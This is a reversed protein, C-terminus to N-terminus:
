LKNNMSQEVACLNKGTEWISQTAEDPTSLGLNAQRMKQYDEPEKPIHSLVEKFFEDQNKTAVLRNRKRLEGLIGLVRGSEDMDQIGSTHAPLVIVSDGYEALVTQVTHYLDGVWESAKGGLDPRGLSNIFLLDGSFLFRNEFFFVNHGPTHGPAQVSRITISTTGLSFDGRAPLPAYKIKGGEMEVPSVHYVAGTADALKRGGSLHDAHLHTDFVYKLKLSNGLLYSLYNEVHRGADIVAAESGSVLVYSLCGKGVRNFQVVKINGEDWITSHRYLSGWARMGGSINCSSFGRQALMDAVFRSADGKGCVVVIEEDKPLKAMAVEPEEIFDIYPINLINLTYRCEIQWARYDEETRVDLIFPTNGTRLRYLLAQASIETPHQETQVAM